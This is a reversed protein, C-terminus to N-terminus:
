TKQRQCFESLDSHRLSSRNAGAATLLDAVLKSTIPTRPAVKRDQRAYGYYPIVATIRDASARRLADIMILLEMLNENSPSCTPQIVFVDKGRVNDEIEVFIEGDSFRRINAKSLPIGVVESISEGLGRNASGSFLVIGFNRPTM